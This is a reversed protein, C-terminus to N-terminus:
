APVNNIKWTRWKRAASDDRPVGDRQGWIIIGPGVTGEPDDDLIVEIARLGPVTQKTHEVMTEFERQMGVQAIWEAAESTVTVPIDTGTTM